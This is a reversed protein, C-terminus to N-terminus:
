FKTLEKLTKWYFVCKAVAKYDYEKKYEASYVKVKGIDVETINKCTLEHYGHSTDLSFILHKPVSPNGSIKISLPTCAKAPVEFKHGGMFIAERSSLREAYEPSGGKKKMVEFIKKRYCDARSIFVPYDKRNITELIFTSHKIDKHVIVRKIKLPKRGSRYWGVMVSTIAIFSALSAMTDVIVKFSM